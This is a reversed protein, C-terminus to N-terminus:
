QHRNPVCRVQEVRRSQDVESLPTVRSELEDGPLVQSLCIFKVLQLELVWLLEDFHHNLHVMVGDLCGLRVELLSIMVDVDRRLLKFHEDLGEFSHEPLSTDLQHLV